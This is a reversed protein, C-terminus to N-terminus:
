LEPREFLSLSKDEMTISLSLLMDDMSEVYENVKNIDGYSIISGGLIEKTTLDTSSKLKNKILRVLTELPIDDFSKVSMDSLASALGTGPGPPMVGFPPVIAVGRAVEETMTYKGKLNSFGFFQEITNVQTENAKAISYGQRTGQTPHKLCDLLNFGTLNIMPTPFLAIAAESYEYIELVFTQDGNMFSRTELLQPERQQKIVSSSIAPSKKYMSEFNVDPLLSKMFNIMGTNNKYCLYGNAKGGPADPCTLSRWPKLLKDNGESVDVLSFFALSKDSYEYLTVEFQRGKWAIVRKCLLLPDKAAAPEPLPESLQKRWEGGSFLEDLKDMHLKNNKYFVYGSKDGHPTSYSQNGKNVGEIRLEMGNPVALLIVLKTVEYLCINGEPVQSFALIKPLAAAVVSGTFTTSQSPQQMSAFQPISM